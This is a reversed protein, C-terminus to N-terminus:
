LTTGQMTFNKKLITFPKNVKLMMMMMRMLTQVMV